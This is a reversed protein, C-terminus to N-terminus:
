VQFWYYEIYRPLIMIVLDTIKTYILGYCPEYWLKAKDLGWGGLKNLTFIVACRGPGKISINFVSIMIYFLVVPTNWDEIKWFSAFDDTKLWCFIFRLCHVQSSQIYVLQINVDYKPQLGSVVLGRCWFSFSADLKVLKLIQTFDSHCSIM